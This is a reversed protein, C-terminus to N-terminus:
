SAGNKGQKAQVNKEMCLVPVLSLPRSLPCLRFDFILEKKLDQQNKTEM